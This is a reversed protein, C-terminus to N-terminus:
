GAPKPAAPPPTNSPPATQPRVAGYGALPPPYGAATILAPDYVESPRGLLFLWVFPLFIALVVWSSDKRFAIGTRYSGIALFVGPRRTIEGGRWSRNSCTRPPTALRSM